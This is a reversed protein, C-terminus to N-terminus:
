YWDTSMATVMAISSATGQAELNEMKEHTISLGNDGLSPNDGFSPDNRPANPM